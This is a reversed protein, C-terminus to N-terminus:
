IKRERRTSGLQDQHYYLVERVEQQAAAPRPGLFRGSKKAQKLNDFLEQTLQSFPIKANGYTATLLKKLAQYLVQKHM